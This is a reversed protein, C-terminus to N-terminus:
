KAQVSPIDSWSTTYQPSRLLASSQAGSPLEAALRVFSHGYKENLTDSLSDLTHDRETDKTTFLSYSAYAKPVLGSLIVGAKKYPVETRYLQAVAKLAEKTMLSTSSTPESFIIEQAGSRGAWDSFRSPRILVVMRTAVLGDQRLKEGVRAVHYAIASELLFQSTVVKAFSRSSTISQKPELNTPAVRYVAQGRLEDVIRVGGIGFEKEIVSKPLALLEAVTGVKLARLRESLRRGIGWVESCAVESQHEQWREPNMIAVGNGKKAVKNAQKAITKSAGAGISVPIGTVQIIRQRLALLEAETITEPLVFFAEDISYVECEEVENKLATMVRASVDRYLTFNSSFLVAGAQTCIDKVQFYPVGMPIGLDKIEQSRAVICGDNSSLVAVPRQALDPRFLRECSVFFNNCDLIGIM